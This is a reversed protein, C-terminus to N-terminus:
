RGRMRRLVVEATHLQYDFPEFRLHGLSVFTDFGPRAWVEVAEDVLRSSTADVALRAELRELLHVYPALEAPTPQLIGSDIKAAVADEIVGQRGPALLPIVAPDDMWPRILEALYQRTAMSRAQTTVDFDYFTQSSM